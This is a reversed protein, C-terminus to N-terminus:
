EEKSKPRYGARIRSLSSPTVGIYQAVYKLPVDNLLKRRRVFNEYRDAASKSNFLSYKKQFMYLQGLATLMMWETWGPEEAMLARCEAFGLVYAETDALCELEFVAGAPDNFWASLELWIDGGVGFFLTDEVEGQSYGFRITGKRFFYIKKQMSGSRAIFDGKAWSEVTCMGAAKELIRDDCPHYSLIIEKFDM